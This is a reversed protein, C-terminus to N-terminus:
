KKRTYKIEMTKWMKGDKDKRHIEFTKSNEDKWKTVMKMEHDEGTMCDTTEAEMTLTKSAEDYQGEMDTMFPSMTDVWGGVYKKEKPDYGLASAGAFKQGAFEGEFKSMLWMKGLMENTETGKSKMPEGDPKEWMSVEADWVGVDKALLEHEKVPTMYDKGQVQTSAALAVIGMLSCVFSRKM